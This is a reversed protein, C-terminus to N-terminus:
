ILKYVGCLCLYACLAMVALYTPSHLTYVHMHVSTCPHVYKYARVYLLTHPNVKM